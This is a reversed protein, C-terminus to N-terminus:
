PRRQRESITTMYLGALSLNDIFDSDPHRAAVAIHIWDCGSRQNSQNFANSVGKNNDM